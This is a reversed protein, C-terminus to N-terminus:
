LNPNHIEPAGGSGRRSTTGSPRSGGDSWAVPAFTLKAGVKTSFDIKALQGYIEDQHAEGCPLTVDDIKTLMAKPSDMLPTKTLESGDPLEDIDVFYSGQESDWELPIALAKTLCVHLTLEPGKHTWQLHEDVKLPRSYM